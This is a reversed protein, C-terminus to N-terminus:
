IREIWVIVQQQLTEEVESQFIYEINRVQYRLWYTSEEGRNFAFKDCFIVTQGALPVTDVHFSYIPQREGRVQFHAIM